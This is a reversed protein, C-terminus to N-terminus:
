IYYYFYLGYWSSSTQDRNQIKDRNALIWKLLHDLREKVGDDRKIFRDTYGDRLNFEPSKRPQIYYRMQRHDNFFNRHSDLSFCGVEVPQKYLPFNREYLQRHTSLTVADGHRKHPSHDERPERSRKYVSEHHDRHPARRYHEAM